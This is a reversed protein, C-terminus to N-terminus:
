EGDWIVGVRVGGRLFQAAPRASEAFYHEVMAVAGAWGIVGRTRLTSLGVGLGFRGGFSVAGNDAQFLSVPALELDYHWAVDHLRLVVPVAPFYNVVFETPQVRPKLMAGGGFELGAYLSWDGGFGRGVLLRGVGGAGITFVGQTHRVQANGGSEFSLAFRDRDSQLGRFGADPEVWFPCEREAWRTATRLALLKREAFRAREVLPTVKRGEAEYLSKADGTERSEAELLALAEGRAAAPTRCTSELLSTRMELLADADVFWSASEQGDVIREIDRALSDAAYSPDARAVRPALSSLALLCGLLIRV